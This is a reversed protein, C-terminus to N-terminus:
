SLLKWLLLKHCTLDFIKSEELKVECFEKYDRFISTWLWSFRIIGGASGSRRWVSLSFSLFLIRSLGSFLFKSYNRINQCFVSLLHLAIIVAVVRNWFKSFMRANGISLFINPLILSYPPWIHILVPLLVSQLLIGDPGSDKM